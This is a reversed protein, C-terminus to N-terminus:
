ISQPGTTFRRFGLRRPALASPRSGGFLIKWYLYVGLDIRHAARHLHQAQLWQEQLRQWINTDSVWCRQLAAQISMLGAGVVTCPNVSRAQRHQLLLADHKNCHAAIPRSDQQQWGRLVLWRVTM